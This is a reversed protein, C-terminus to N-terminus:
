ADLLTALPAGHGRWRIHPRYGMAENIDLMFRNSSANETEFSTVTPVAGVVREFNTGKMWRGIGRGRHAAVVATNGQAALFPRHMNVFTETLGAGSGDPALVLLRFQRTNMAARMAEKSRVAEADGIPQHFELDDVPADGMAAYTTAYADLLDDPCRDDIAVMRYGDASAGAWAAMQDRDVDAVRVRSALEEIQYQLGMATAFAEGDEDTAWLLISRAAPSREAILGALHRLVDTGLGQRRRAPDIWLTGVEVLHDNPPGPWLLDVFGVADDGAFALIGETRFQSSTMTIRDVHEPLTPPPDTPNHVADQSLAFEHSLTLLDAPADRDLPVLRLM